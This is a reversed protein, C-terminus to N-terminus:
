TTLTHPLARGGTASRVLRFLKLEFCTKVRLERAKEKVGLFSETHRKLNNLSKLAGRFSIRSRFSEIVQSNRFFSLASIAAM